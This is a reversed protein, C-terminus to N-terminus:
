HLSIFKEVTIPVEGRYSLGFQKVARAAICKLELRSKVSLIRRAEDTEAIDMATKGESNVLDEHVGGDLLTELIDRLVQRGENNPKFAVALHLPTDGKNNIANVNCGTHIILKITEVCPLKCVRRVHDDKIET